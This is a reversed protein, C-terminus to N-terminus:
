LDSVLTGGAPIHLDASAENMTLFPTVGDSKYFTIDGAADVTFSLGGAVVRLLDGGARITVGGFTDNVEVAAHEGVIAVGIGTNGSGEAEIKMGEGSDDFIDLGYGNPGDDTARLLLWRQEPTDNQSNWRIDGTATSSGTAQRGKFFPDLRLKLEMLAKDTIQANGDDIVTM